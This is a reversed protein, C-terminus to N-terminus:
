DIRRQWTAPNRSTHLVASVLIADDEIVYFVAYPFRQMMARRVGSRVVQYGHPRDLIRAYTARLERTFSTGLGTREGEYWAFAAEVDREAEPGTILV